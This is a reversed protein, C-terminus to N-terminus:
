KGHEAKMKDWKAQQDPTLIARLKGRSEVRIAHIKEYQETLVTKIQAKQAETLQLEAAIKALEAKVNEMMESKMTEKQAPPTASKAAETQAAASQFCLGFVIFLAIFLNKM